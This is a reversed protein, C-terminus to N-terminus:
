WTGAARGADRMRDCGVRHHHAQGRYSGDTEASREIRKDSLQIGALEALLDAATAFPEAAAARAVMRRLGPSLSAGTVGLDDDRPVIGRGCAACHYYARRLRVRGLVTDVNKDRYGVFQACIGPGATWGRGAIDPTPPWCDGWCCPM